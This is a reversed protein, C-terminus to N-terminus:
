ASELASVRSSLDNVTNTLQSIANSLGTIQSELAYDGKLQYRGDAQSKSYCYGKVWDVAAADKDGNFNINGETTQTPTIQDTHIYINYNLTTIPTGGNIESCNKINFGNMNLAAEFSGYPVFTLDSIEIQKANILDTDIQGNHIETSRTFTMDGVQYTGSSKVIAGDVEGGIIKGGSITLIGNEYKLGVTKINGNSLDILTGSTGEVYNESQISGGIMKGGFELDGQNIDFNLQKRIGKLIQFGIDPEAIISNEGNTILLHGVTLDEIFKKTINEDDINDMAYRIGEDLMMLYNLLKKIYAKNDLQGSDIQPTKIDPLKAM